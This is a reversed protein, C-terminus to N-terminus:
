LCKNSPSSFYNLGGGVEFFEKKAMFIFCDYLGMKVPFNTPIKEFGKPDFMSRKQM